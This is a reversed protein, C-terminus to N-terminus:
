LTSCSPVKQKHSRVRGSAVSGGIFYPIELRDLAALVEQFAARLSTM